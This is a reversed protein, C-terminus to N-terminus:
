DAEATFREQGIVLRGYVGDYGPEVKLNNNRMDGILRALRPNLSQLGSIPADLLVTYENDYKAILAQYIERVTKSTYTNSSTTAMILEHLPLIRIFPPKGNPRVGRKRDALEYVRQEVGITMKRGCVPCMNGRKLAEEPPMSVGCTRHGTWHYKGFEPPVELTLKLGEGRVLVRLLHKYDAEGLAFVNAERGLRWPHHSHADSNSLLNFRDLRSIMWNMEPDSSLGTELSHIRDSREAYCEEVTNFGSNSGFLSFWPTWVHAPIVEIDSDVSQADDVLTQADVNLTPRGDSSLDGFRGLKEALAEATSITPFVLLHHIKHTLGGEDAFVTSVEATPVILIGEYEYLEGGAPKLSDKLERLWTPHFADGSGILRLGKLKSNRTIGQLNMFGSTARSYRSHIHLDVIYDDRGIIGGRAVTDSEISSQPSLNQADIYEDLSKQKSM